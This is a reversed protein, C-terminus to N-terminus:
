INVIFNLFEKSVKITLSKSTMIFIFQFATLPWREGQIGPLSQDTWCARCAVPYLFCDTCFSVDINVICLRNSITCIHKRVREREVGEREGERGM